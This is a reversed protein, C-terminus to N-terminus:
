IARGGNRIHCVPIKHYGYDELMIAVAIDEKLLEQYLQVYEANSLEFREIKYNHEKASAIERDLKAIITGEIVVRM